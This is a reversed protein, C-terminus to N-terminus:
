KLYKILEERTFFVKDIFPNIAAEIKMEFKNPNFLILQKKHNNRKLCISYGIEAATSLGYPSIVLIISAEDIEKYCKQAILNITDISDVLNITEPLFVKYDTQQSILKAVEKNIISNKIPAAIYIKGKNM